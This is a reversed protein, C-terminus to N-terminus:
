ALYKMDLTNYSLPSEYAEIFLDRIIDQGTQNPHPDRTLKMYWWTWWSYRPYFFTIDGMKGIEGYAYFSAHVDVIKYNVDSISRISDNIRGIYYQGIDHLQEDAPYGTPHSASNYPNYLTMSIIEVDPNLQRIRAILAPYDVEFASTGAEAIATDIEWFSSDRAADMINNGGISLTIIDANEVETIYTSENNLRYLLEGADDGDVALNNYTLNNGYIGSLYDRFQYAYTYMTGSIGTTGTAISDGLALYHITPNVVPEEVNVTRTVEEAANGAADSVNYTIVYTGATSTDVTDGGVVISETLDGDVNDVATTGPDTFTDGVTLNMPNDGLLTIVPPETDEVVGGSLTITFTESKERGVLKVSEPSVSAEYGDTVSTIFISYTGGNLNTFNVSTGDFSFSNVVKGDQLLNFDVNGTGDFGSGNVTITHNPNPPAAFAPSIMMSFIFIFVIIFALIRNRM